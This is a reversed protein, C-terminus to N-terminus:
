NKSLKIAVFQIFPKPINYHYLFDDQLEECKEPWERIVILDKDILNIPKILQTFVFKIHDIDQFLFNVLDFLKKNTIYGLFCANKIKYSTCKKYIYNRIETNFTTKSFIANQKWFELIKKEELNFDYNNSININKYDIMRQKLSNKINYNVFEFFCIFYNFFM